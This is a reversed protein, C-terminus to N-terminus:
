FYFREAAMEQIKIYSSDLAADILDAQQDKPAFEIMEVAIRQTQVRPSALANMIVKPLASRLQPQQEASACTIIRAATYQVHIDPSQLDTAIVAALKLYLGSIDRWGSPVHYVMLAAERRVKINANDLAVIIIAILKKVLEPDQDLSSNSMQRAAMSQVEIHSSNLANDILLARENIPALSIESVAKKQVVINPDRLAKAIVSARRDKPVGHIYNEDLRQSISKIEVDGDKDRLYRLVAHETIAEHGSIEYMPLHNLLEVKAEPAQPASIKSFGKM